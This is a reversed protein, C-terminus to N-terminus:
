CMCCVKENELFDSVKGYPIIQDCVQQLKDTLIAFDIDLQGTMLSRAQQVFFLLKVGGNMQDLYHCWSVRLSSQFWHESLKNPM